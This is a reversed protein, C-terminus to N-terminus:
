ALWTSAKLVNKRSCSVKQFLLRNNFFNTSSIVLESSRQLNKRSSPEVGRHYLHTEPDSDYGDIDGAEDNSLYQSNRLNSPSKRLLLQSTSSAILDEEKRNKLSNNFLEENAKLRPASAQDSLTSSPLSSPSTVMSAKFAKDDEKQHAHRPRGRRTFYEMIEEFELYEDAENEMRDITDSFLEDQPPPPSSALM